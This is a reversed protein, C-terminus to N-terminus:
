NMVVYKWGGKRIENIMGLKNWTAYEKLIGQGKTKLTFSFSLNSGSAKIIQQIFDPLPGNWETFSNGIFLVKDGNQLPSIQKPLANEANANILGFQLFLVTIVSLQFKISKM